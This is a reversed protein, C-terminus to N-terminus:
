RKDSIVKNMAEQLPLPVFGFDNKAKMTCLLSRSCIGRGQETESKSIFRILSEAYGSARAFAMAFEYSNYPEGAIHMIGSFQRRMIENLPRILEGTWLPQKFYDKFQSIEGGYFLKSELSALRPGFRRDPFRGFIHSIRLIVTRGCTGLLAEEVAQKAKGYETAPRCTSFEKFVGEEAGFVADSSFHILHINHANCFKGLATFINKALEPSKGAWKPHATNIIVEPRGRQFLMDFSEVLMDFKFLRSPPGPNTLYTGHAIHYESLGDM